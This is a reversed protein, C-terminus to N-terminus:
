TGNKLTSRPFTAQASSRRTRTTSEESLGQLGFLLVADRAGSLGQQSLLLTQLAPFVPGGGGRSRATFLAAVENRTRQECNRLTGQTRSSVARSAARLIGFIGAQHRSAGYAMRPFRFKSIGATSSTCVKNSFSCGNNFIEKQPIIIQLNCTEYVITPPWPAPEM